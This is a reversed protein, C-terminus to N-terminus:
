DSRIQTGVLLLTSSIGSTHQTAITERYKLQSKSSIKSTFLRCSMQDKLGKLKQLKLIHFRKEKHIVATCLVQNPGFFHMHCEIEKYRLMENGCIHKLHRAIIYFQNVCHPPFSASVLSSSFSLIQQMKTALLM